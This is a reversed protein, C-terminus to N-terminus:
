LEGAFAKALISPMLADFGTQTQRQVSQLQAVKSLLSDFWTQLEITPVPVQIRGLAELGLTRNRGAGGPSADGLQRIGDPALFHFCLFGATALGAKPVCTIFRHSGYRGEDNSTAVAVAGEWAFVNSFLLDGAAIRYLRKTGLEVGDIAPKHFTGKGFSRIGLEPYSKMPDIKVPRRVLPAVDAMQMSKAGAVIHAYSSLLTNRTLSQSKQRLQHVLEVRQAVAEIRAVVRRQESVPPLPIVYSLVDSPRIAAYNTSGQAKVQDELM